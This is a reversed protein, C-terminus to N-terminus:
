FVNEQCTMCKFTISGTMMSWSDEFVVNKQPWHISHDKLIPEVANRAFRCKISYENALSSILKDVIAVTVLMSQVM